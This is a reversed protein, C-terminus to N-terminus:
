CALRRGSKNGLDWLWSRLTAASFVLRPWQVSCVSLPAHALPGLPQTNEGHSEHSGAPSAIDTLCQLGTVHESLLYSQM